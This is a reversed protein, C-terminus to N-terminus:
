HRKLFTQMLNRLLPKKLTIKKWKRKSNKRSTAKGKDTGSNTYTYLHELNAKKELM